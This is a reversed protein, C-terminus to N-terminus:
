RSYGFGWKTTNNSKLCALAGQRLHLLWFPSIANQVVFEKIAFLIDITTKKLFTYFVKGSVHNTPTVEKFGYECRVEDARM